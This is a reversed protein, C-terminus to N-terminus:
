EIAYLNGDHSGVYVVGNVVAPSSTIKDGTLFDWLKAGTAADVAYLRGDESGVFVVPGAVAPSSRVAGGTAFEWRVKHSPLDIALLKNDCGLYMTDGVVVPSSTDGRGVKLLWLFGSQPPPEPFWPFMAWVQAWFPRIGHEQLWTRAMGDVAHLVGYTTTFYVTTGTVAPSSFVAYHTKYRLRRQGNLCNLAYSYGSGGGTYVIGNAVVPSSVSPGGTNYDWLKTGKAVDVAYLYYDDSGFYVVGNAVAASSRVPYQTQFDWIKEGSGADLAYLRGDNSGVYVVGKAIAPSSEVWSGTEYEWRKAGTEADLAYLKYDQSGIYVSGDVVAPSSHVPAGTPFVWKLTGQPLLGGPGASGSRALDHRFMTWEGPLSNSNVEQPPKFMADTFNYLYLCVCALVALSPLGIITALKIRKKRKQYVERRRTLEKLEETTLTVDQSLLAGWCHQCFQTGAPNGKHCVPCIVWLETESASDM